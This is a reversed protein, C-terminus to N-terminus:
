RKIKPLTKILGEADYISLNGDNNLVYYEGFPITKDKKGNEMMM